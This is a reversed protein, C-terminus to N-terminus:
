DKGGARATAPGESGSGISVQMGTCGVQIQSLATAQVM